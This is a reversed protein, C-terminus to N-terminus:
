VPLLFRLRGLTLYEYGGDDFPLALRLVRRVVQSGLIKWSLAVISTWVPL